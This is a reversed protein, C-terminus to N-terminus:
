ISQYKKVSSYGPLQSNCRRVLTAQNINTASAAKSSSPFEVGNVFWLKSIRSNENQEQRTAWRCNGPEYNGNTDRRDISHVPSPRVGMDKLFSEFSEKWRACVSIGRGGYNKYGPLNSNSCRGLMQRWIRHEQTNTKGHVSRLRNSDSTGCGCSRSVGKVLSLAAVSKSEGCSCSCLWYIRGNRRVPDVSIATLRGFSQGTLDKFSPM